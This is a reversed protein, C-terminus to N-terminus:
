IKRIDEWGYVLETLKKGGIEIEVSDIKKAGLAEYFFRANNEELVYVAMTTINQELLDEVIPKMLLRGLGKRQYEKLIYIAYVEGKCKPYNGSREKGGISFGVIRGENDEAVYLTKQKIAGHWIKEHEEYSLKQLYDNSIIGEYTTRWSDVQVIAIGRADPLVAKRVILKDDGRM